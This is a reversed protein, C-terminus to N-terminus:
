RTVYESRRSSIFQGIRDETIGYDPATDILNIGSNLVLNLLRDAADNSVVRVGWTKPGRLGMSGYGLQSVELGTRGFQKKLM